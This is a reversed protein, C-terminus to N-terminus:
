DPSATTRWTIAGEATPAYRCTSGTVVTNRLHEGLEADRAAVEDIARKLSKRVATRAREEPGAFTRSRGGLGTARRVEHVLLELELQLKEARGLDANQKAEDLDERLDRLRREYATRATRDIVPQTSQGNARVPGAARGALDLAPIAIGPAILLRALYGVGVLDPLHVFRDGIGILWAGRERQLTGVRAVSRDASLEDLARAWSGARADMGMRSAEDVADSLLKAAQARDGDLGRRVYAGALDASSIATLPRNDMRRNAALARELHEVASGVRGCTLAAMGLARETSGFCVVAFSPMVAQDGFPLLLDYAQAALEADCVGAAAEITAAMGALWTSSPVLSALGGPALRDLAARAREPQGAVAAISAATARFAFDAAVLTPADAVVDVLDLLEADRGQAWRIAVMHAGLYGLADADGVEVGLDYCSGAAAEAEDLHGHRILLMVKMASALFAIGACNLTEARADLESLSRVARPDGLHFLDITRWCLGLLSRVADGVSSAVRILEEAM